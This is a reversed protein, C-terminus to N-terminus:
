RSDNLRETGLGGILLREKESNLLQRTWTTFGGDVLQREQGSSDVKSINFCTSAYYGRGATRAPDDLGCSAHPFRAVLPALVGKELAPTQRGNELDTIAVRVKGAGVAHLLRLFFMLQELLSEVEFRFSGEDRGAAVLGLLRFHQQSGPDSFSQARMVRHSAALRVRAASRSDARLLDGRRVACELALVNTVDAVVETNRITTVVNNQDVAAIASNTGLPCVPSLEVGEYGDPLLSFILLDLEAMSRPSVRAPAAFRDRRYRELLRSPGVAAARRHYAALLLSQLDTPALREALVELLGDIGVQREIRGILADEHFGVALLTYTL